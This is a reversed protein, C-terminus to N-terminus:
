YQKSIFDQTEYGFIGDNLPHNPNSADLMHPPTNNLEDVAKKHGSHVLKDFQIEWDTIKAM